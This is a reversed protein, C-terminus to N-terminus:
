APEELRRCERQRDDQVERHGGRQERRHQRDDIAHQQPRQRIRVRIAQHHNPRTRV